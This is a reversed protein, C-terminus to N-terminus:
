CFFTSRIQNTIRRDYMCIRIYIWKYTSFESPTFCSIAHWQVALLVQVVYINLEFLKESSAIVIM